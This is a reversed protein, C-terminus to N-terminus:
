CPCPRRCRWTARSLWDLNGAQIAVPHTQSKTAVVKEGPRSKNEIGPVRVEAEANIRTAAPSRGSAATRYKLLVAVPAMVIHVSLRENPQRGGHFQRHSAVGGEETSSDFPIVGEGIQNRLAAAELFHIGHEHEPAESNSSSKALDLIIKAAKACAGPQAVKGCLIELKGRM